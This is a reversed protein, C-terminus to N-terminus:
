VFNFFHMKNLAKKSSKTFQNSIVQCPAKLDRYCLLQMSFTFCAFQVRDVRTPMYPGNIHACLAKSFYLSMVLVSLWEGCSYFRHMIVNSHINYIIYALSLLYRLSLHTRAQTEVLCTTVRYKGICKICRM